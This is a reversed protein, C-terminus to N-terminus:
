AVSQALTTIHPHHGDPIPVHHIMRDSQSFYDTNSLTQSLPTYAYSSKNLADLLPNKDLTGDPKVTLQLNGVTITNAAPKPTTSAVPKSKTPAPLSPAPDPAAIPTSLPASPQNSIPATTATDQSDVVDQLDQPLPTSPTSPLSPSQASAAPDPQNMGDLPDDEMPLGEGEQATSSLPMTSPALPTQASNSLTSTRMSGTNNQVISSPDIMMSPTAPLTNVTNPAPSSAGQISTGQQSSISGNSLAGLSSTLSATLADPLTPTSATSNGSLASFLETVFQTFFRTLLQIIDM